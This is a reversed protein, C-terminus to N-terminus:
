NEKKNKKGKGKKDASKGSDADSKRNVNDDNCNQNDQTCSKERTEKSKKDKKDDQDDEGDKNKEKKTKKKKKEKDGKADATKLVLEVNSFNITVPAGWAGVLFMVFLFLTFTKRFQAMTTDKIDPQTKKFHANLKIIQQWKLQGSRITQM